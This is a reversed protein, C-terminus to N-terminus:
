GESNACSQHIEGQQESEDVENKGLKNGGIFELMMGNVASHGFRFVGLVICCCMYFISIRTRHGFLYELICELLEVIAFPSHASPLCRLGM